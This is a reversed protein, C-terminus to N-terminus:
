AVKVHVSENPPLKLGFGGLYAWSALLKICISQLDSVLYCSWLKRIFILNRVQIWKSILWFVSFLNYSLLCILHTVPSKFPPSSSRQTGFCRRDEWCRNLLCCCSLLVWVLCLIIVFSFLLLCLIISLGDTLAFREANRHMTCVLIWPVFTWDDDLFPIQSLM